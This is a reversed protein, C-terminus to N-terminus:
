KKGWSIINLGFQVSAYKSNALNSYGILNDAMLYMNVPGAQLSAGLGINTYSFKDITYTTKLSMVNGLRHQYFASLAAQPGRPRNIAYLQAGYSNKYVRGRNNGGSTSTCYCAEKSEIEKGFDRRISTYFKTPRFTIYNDSGEEYPVLDELDDVFTRWQDETSNLDEPLRVELGETSAFGKVSYTRVDKSHYIFGVDILSGTFVTREDINYTFGLDFGVGLNGGLLARKGLVSSIAAGNAQSDDDIIDKLEFVGSTKIEVDAELTSELLNDDGQTTVFYGKNKTSTFNLLSSYVKARFGMTLENSIKKNIGFHYVNLIEGRTKLHNLDFKKNLNNTNGEYALLAYDKFFYGIADGENYAGFSYFIDENNKSRFGINLLEVQYTGSLEDSFDMGYIVKERFKTNFDIGDNAFLDNSKLGSSGAQFSFGSTLPVGAYWKFSTKMGPNLLLAQPVENFDYLLQKNQSNVYFCGFLLVIIFINRIRM